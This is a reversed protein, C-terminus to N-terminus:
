KDGVRLSWVDAICLYCRTKYPCNHKVLVTIKRKIIKNYEIYSDGIERRM